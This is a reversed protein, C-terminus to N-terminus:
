HPAVTTPRWAHTRERVFRRGYLANYTTARLLNSIGHLFINHYVRMGYAARDVRVAPRHHDYVDTKNKASTELRETYRHSFLRTM